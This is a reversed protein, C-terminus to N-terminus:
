FKPNYDKRLKALKQQVEERTFFKVNGDQLKKLRFDIEDKMRDSINNDM